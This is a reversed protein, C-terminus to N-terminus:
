LTLHRVAISTLWLSRVDINMCENSLHSRMVGFGMVGFGMVGFGMIGFSMGFGMVGFHFFLGMIGFIINSILGMIGFGM